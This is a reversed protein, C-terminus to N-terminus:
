RYYDHYNPICQGVSDPFTHYPKSVMSDLANDGFNWFWDVINGTTKDVFHATPYNITITDPIIDFTAMPPNYVIVIASGTTSGVGAADSM